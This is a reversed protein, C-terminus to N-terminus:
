RRGFSNGIGPKRLEKERGEIVMKKEIPEGRELIIADIEDKTL